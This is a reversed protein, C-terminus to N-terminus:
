VKLVLRVLLERQEQQEQLERLALLVKHEKRVPLAPQVQLEPLDVQVQLARLM